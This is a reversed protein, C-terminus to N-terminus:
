SESDVLLHEIEKLERAYDAHDGIFKKHQVPSLLSNLLEPHCVTHASPTLYEELSSWRYKEPTKIIGAVYPNFHIYRSVHLFQDNGTVSVARFPGSFLPGTRKYRVNFYKAYSNTLRQIYRSIGKETNEKLLLHFHNRMLCFCLIDVLGKGPPTPLPDPKESKSRKVISYSPLITRPLCHTLLKKFRLRDYNDIFINRKEVGRNYLHYINGPTFQETRYGMM